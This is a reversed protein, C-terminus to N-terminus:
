KVGESQRDLVRRGGETLRYKQLRSNPKGPVTYELLGSTVFQRVAEHLQGDVRKKGISAAIQAKSLPAHRLVALVRSQLDGRLEVKSEVKSEVESEVRPVAIPARFTM